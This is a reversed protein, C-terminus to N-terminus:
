TFNVSDKLSEVAKKYEEPLELEPKDHIRFALADTGELVEKLMDPIELLKKRCYLASNEDGAEAYLRIGTYLMDFYDLYEELEYRALAIAKRKYEIMAEFDGEAYALRAKASHALSVSQNWFLIKDALEGMEETDEAKSLMGLWAGTCGPYVTVAAKLNGTRYLGSAIGLWCNVVILIGAAIRLWM